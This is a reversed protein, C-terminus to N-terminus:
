RVGRRREFRRKEHGSQTVHVRHGHGGFRCRVHCVESKSNRIPGESGASEVGRVGWSFSGEGTCCIGNFCLYDNRYNTLIELAHKTQFDEFQILAKPWRHRIARMFEDIVRYYDGGELRQSNLGVYWKDNLLSKNNTGVDLCM